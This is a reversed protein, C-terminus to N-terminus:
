TAFARQLVYPGNSAKIVIVFWSNYLKGIELFTIHFVLRDSDAGNRAIILKLRGLGGVPVRDSGTTFQLLRRKDEISLEHVVSRHGWNFCM